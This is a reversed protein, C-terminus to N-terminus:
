NKESKIPFPLPFVKKSVILSTAEIVNLPKAFYYGQVYEVDMSSLKQAEEEREVGEAVIKLGLSKALSAIGSVLRLDKENETMSSIFQRDIKLVDFPYRHIYELASYGTGFDDICLEVGLSKLALFFEEIHPSEKMLATETCEIKLTHPPLKAARIFSAIRDVEKPNGIQRASLNISVFFPKDHNYHWIRIQECAQELIHFGLVNIFDTEEAIPIFQAPSIMGIEPHIWRVLCEFGAVSGNKLDVIPQYYLHIENNDIAKRFGSELQMRNLADKHQDEHYLAYRYGGSRKAQYMALDANRMVEEASLPSDDILCIGISSSIFIDKGDIQVPKKLRSLIRRAIIEAYEPESMDTLLITFEDGGLRAVTDYDRLVSHFIKAAVQIIKDGYEHGLSDNIIKFRDLDLFLVAHYSADLRKTRKLTENLRDLFLARNPLGTLSDYFAARFLNQEHQKQETIDRLVFLYSVKEPLIIAKIYLQAPFITEDYKCCQIEKSSPFQFAIKEPSFAGQDSITEFRFASTIRDIHQGIIEESVFGFLDEGPKNIMIIMGHEDTVFIAEQVSHIIAATETARNSLQDNLILMEKSMLEVSRNTMRYRKDAEQYTKDILDCLIEVCVDGDQSKAKRLQRELLSHM